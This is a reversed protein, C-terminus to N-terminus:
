IKDRLVRIKLIEKTNEKVRYQHAIRLGPLWIIEGGSCFLPFSNRARVPIKENILFDALNVDGETMGLAQFRDGNRRTRVIMPFRVKGMDLYASYPDPNSYINELSIDDVGLRKCVCGWGEGISFIVPLSSVTRDGALLQPYDPHTPASGWEGVLIRDSEKQIFLDAVFDMQASSNSKAILKLGLQIGSFGIDRLGPRLAAAAKRLVRRKLAEHLNSFEELDFAVHNATRELLLNEWVDELKDSLFESDYALINATHLLLQSANPNFESLVPILEHRIKNRFLTTDLNSRDFRPSLNNANCYELVQSKWINLLPRILPIEAHWPTIWRYHMGSLGEMGSGRLLHMLVTEVQDDATHAVVVADVSLREAEQFLFSYRLERAAEELSMKNEGAFAKTDGGGIVCRVGISECFEQVFETDSQADKRLGHNYHACIVNVGIRYLGDLLSLSDAGGSVGVLLLKGAPFNCNQFLTQKLKELM